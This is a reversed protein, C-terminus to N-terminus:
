VTDALYQTSRLVPVSPKNVEDDHYKALVTAEYEDDAQLKGKDSTRDESINGIGGRGSSRVTESLYSHGHAHGHPVLGPSSESSKGRV